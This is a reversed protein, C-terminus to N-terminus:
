KILFIYKISCDIFFDNFDKNSIKLIEKNFSDEHSTKLGVTLRYGFTIGIFFKRWLNYDIGIRPKIFFYSDSQLIENNTLFRNFYISKPIYKFKSFSIGISSGFSLYLDNFINTYRNYYIDYNNINYNLYVDYFLDHIMSKTSKQLSIGIEDYNTRLSIQCGAFNISKKDIRTLEYFPSLNLYLTIIGSNITDIEQSLIKCPLFIIILFMKYKNMQNIM